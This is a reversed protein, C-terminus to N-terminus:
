GLKEACESIVAALRATPREFREIDVAILRSHPFVKEIDDENMKDSYFVTDPALEFLEGDDTYFDAETERMNKGFVSLMDSCLTRGTSLMLGGEAYEEVIVFSGASAGSQQAATMASDLGSLAARAIGDSEVAGYFVASPKIYIDCLEAYTDPYDLRLVRIGANKLTLEDTAAIPSQTLLLEPAASAIAEIDPKAPSGIKPLSVAADPYSRYESVAVLKDQFGLDFIIETLAPSLSAVSAPPADFSESDFSVPYASREPPIDAEPAMSVVDPPAIGHGCGSLLLAAAFIVALLRRIKMYHRRM